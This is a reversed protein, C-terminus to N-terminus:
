PLKLHALAALNRLGGAPEPATAEREREREREKEKKREKKRKRERANVAHILYGLSFLTVALIASLLDLYHGVSHQSGWGMRPFVRLGEFVHTLVVAVLGAAGVLQLFSSMSRRRVFIITTVTFLACVPILAVFAKVAADNM